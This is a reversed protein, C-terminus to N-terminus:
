GCESGAPKASNETISNSIPFKDYSEVVICYCILTNARYNTKLRNTYVVSVRFHICCSQRFLRRCQQKDIGPSRWLRREDDSRDTGGLRM